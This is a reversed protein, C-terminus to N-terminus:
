TRSPGPRAAAGALATTGAPPALSRSTEVWPDGPHGAGAGRRRGARRGLAALVTAADERGCARREHERRSCPGAEHLAERYEAAPGSGAAIGAGRGSEPAGRAM